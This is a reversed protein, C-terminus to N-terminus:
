AKCFSSFFEAHCRATDKMSMLAHVMCKRPQPCPSTVELKAWPTVGIFYNLFLKSFFTKLNEKNSNTNKRFNPYCQDSSGVNCYMFTDYQYKSGSIIIHYWYLMWLWWIVLGLWCNESQHCGWQFVICIDVGHFRIICILNNQIVESIMHYVIMIKPDRTYQICSYLLIHM